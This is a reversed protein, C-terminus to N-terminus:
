ELIFTENEEWNARLELVTNFYQIKEPYVKKLYNGTDWIGNNNDDFIARVIYKKPVLNDFNLTTNETIRKSSILENKETLLEIIIPSNVNSVTINLVGYSELKKTSFKYSLTDNVNEFIDTITKPFLQLDYSTNLEKEFNIFLKTKYSDVKVSFPVLISDKNILTIKSTDIQIIPISSSISFTDRLELTSAINNKLVLTDQKSSRLKVSVTDRFNLNSVEFLISDKEISNFWYTLSDKGKESVLEYKFNSPTKDLLKITLNKGNGEYGFLIRGKSKEIPRSLKYPLIEKFLTVFLTEDTPITITDKIFGIKDIKPNYIKNDNADKLAILLYKGARLNTLEFLTSDLTNSIYRPKEKFIISDTFSDNYEYLMVDIDKTTKSGLSETVEGAFNLSDIYSGTSFVYKFNGLENEENNDVISNGFNFAYTTNSDLTDLIEIKIFKSATGLPTIIPAYKQPPSIVLQKNVEKLKIYEDFSIKIKKAKFNISKHNPDASVLIPAISDKKGGTPRGRKACNSLLLSLAVLLLVKYIKYNM